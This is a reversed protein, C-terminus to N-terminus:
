KVTQVMTRYLSSQLVVQKHKDKPGDAGAKVELCVGALCGTPPLLRSRTPNYLRCLSPSFFTFCSSASLVGIHFVFIFAVLRRYPSHSHFCIIHTGSKSHIPFHPSRTLAVTQWHPPSAYFSFSSRAFWRVFELVSTTSSLIYESVLSTKIEDLHIRSVM